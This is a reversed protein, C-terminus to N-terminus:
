LCFIILDHWFKFFFDLLKCVFSVDYVTKLKETGAAYQENKHELYANESKMREIELMMKRNAAELRRAKEEKSERPLKLTLSM